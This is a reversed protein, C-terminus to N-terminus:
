ALIVPVPQIRQQALHFAGSHTRKRRAVQAIEAQEVALGRGVEGGHAGVVGRARQLVVEVAEDSAGVVEDVGSLADRGYRQPLEEGVAIRAQQAAERAVDDRGRRDEKEGSSEAREDGERPGVDARVHGAWAQHVGDM